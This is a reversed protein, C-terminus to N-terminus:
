KYCTFSSRKSSENIKWSHGDIVPNMFPDDAIYENYDNSGQGFDHEEDEESIDLASKRMIREEVNGAAQQPSQPPFPNIRTAM